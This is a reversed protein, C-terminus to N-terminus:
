LELAPLALRAGGCAARSSSAEAPAAATRDLARAERRRQLTDRVIDELQRECSPLGLSRARELCPERYAVEEFRSSLCLRPDVHEIGGSGEALQLVLRALSLISARASGGLNLAGAIPIETTSRGTPSQGTPSQGTPSQGTPSQGTAARGPTPHRGLARELLAELARCIEDVHAFTRVQAGDGHVSLARGDLAQEVFNPLVMGSRAGQGPGVVNFFRLHIPAHRPAFDAAARDLIQEAELKSGAYAWRGQGDLARLPDSERLPGRKEAYVESTSASLLAPRHREPLSALAAALEHAAARNARRCGQPDALVRRVGVRAALHVLADLRGEARLVQQVVETMRGPESVDACLFRARADVRERRGMSLDDVVVLRWGHDALREVLRSGIFGAGGTVLATRAAHEPARRGMSPALSPQGGAPAERLARPQAASRSNAGALRSEASSPRAPNM